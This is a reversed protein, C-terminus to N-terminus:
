LSKLKKGGKEKMREEGEENRAEKEEKERIRLIDITYIDIKNTIPGFAYGIKKVNEPKFYHVLENRRYDDM